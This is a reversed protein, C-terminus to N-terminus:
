VKKKKKLKLSFWKFNFDPYCISFFHEEVLFIYYVEVRCSRKLWRWRGNKVVLDVWFLYFFFYWLICMTYMIFVCTKQVLSYIYSLIFTPSTEFEVCYFMNGGYVNRCYNFWCHQTVVYNSCYQQTRIDALLLSPHHNFGELM